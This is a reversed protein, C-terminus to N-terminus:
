SVISLCDWTRVKLKNFAPSLEDMYEASSTVTQAFSITSLVVFILTTTFSLVRKM